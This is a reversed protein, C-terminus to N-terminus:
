GDTIIIERAIGTIAGHARGIDNTPNISPIAM